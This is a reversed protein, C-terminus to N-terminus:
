ENKKEETCILDISEDPISKMLDLCDGQLLKISNMFGM